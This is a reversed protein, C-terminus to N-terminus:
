VPGIMLQGGFAEAKGRDARADGLEGAVEQAFAAKGFAMDEAIPGIDNAFVQGFEGGGLSHDKGTVRAVAATRLARCREFNPDITGDSEFDFM